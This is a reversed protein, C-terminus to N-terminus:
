PSMAAHLLPSSARPGGESTVALQRMDDDGYLLHKQDKEDILRAAAPGMSDHGSAM